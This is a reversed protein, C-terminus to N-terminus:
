INLKSNLAEIIMTCAEKIETENIILPAAIRICDPAYLFWDTLVGNKVCYQIVDRCLEDNDLKVSLLLGKGSISKISPHFLYKRFLAEKKLSDKILDKNSTLYDLTALGVAACLPNGGFTTIHGLVPNEKLSSMIKESSIFAGLPLGGGMGKALLLIDPEIGFHEFAFLKGTRGYGSQIEDLILLAGSEDCKKRLAQMFENSPVICGAEGQITEAIVCATQDNIFNLQELNNFESSTFGPLLPAFANRYAEDSSLSLAAHSSGHYSNKFSHIHARGTYRKALKLAGEVAETGSSVFYVNNLKEPLNESLKQALKVQPAHIMEGYVMVHLYKESQIKIANLIAPHRHGLTSVSIGSILDLYKKNNTDYLYMGEAKEIELALPATSTQALHSQFLQRNSIM